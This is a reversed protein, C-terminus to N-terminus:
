KTKMLFYNIVKLYSITKINLKENELGWDDNKNLPLQVQKKKIKRMIDYCYTNM